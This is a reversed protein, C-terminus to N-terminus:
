RPRHRCEVQARILLHTLKGNAFWKGKNEFRIRRIFIDEGPEFIGDGNGDEVDFSALALRFKSSYKPRDGNKHSVIIDVSGPDGAGGEVPLEDLRQAGVAGPVGDRGGPKSFTRYVPKKDCAPCEAPGGKCRCAGGELRPGGQLRSLTSAANVLANSM